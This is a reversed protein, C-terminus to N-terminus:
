LRLCPAEPALLAAAKSLSRPPPQGLSKLEDDLRRCRAVPRLLSCARTFGVLASLPPQEAGRQDHEHSLVVQAPRPRTSTDRAGAHPRAAGLAAASGGAPRPQAPPPLRGARGARRPRPRAPQVLRHLRAPLPRAVAAAARRAAGRAAQGARAVARGRGAQLVRPARHLLPAPGVPPLLNRRSPQHHRAHRACEHRALRVRAPLADGALSAAHGTSRRHSQTAGRRPSGPLPAAVEHGDRLLRAGARHGSPCCINITALDSSLQVLVQRESSPLISLESPKAAGRRRGESSSGLGQESDVSSHFSDGGRPAPRGGGLLRGLSSRAARATARVPTPCCCCLCGLASLLAEGVRAPVRLLWGGCASQGLRARVRACSAAARERRTPVRRVVVGDVRVATCGRLLAEIDSADKVRLVSQFRLPVPHFTGNRINRLVRLQSRSAARVSRFMHLTAAASLAQLVTSLVNLLTVPLLVLLSARAGLAALLAVAVAVRGFPMPRRAGGFGGRLRANLLLLLPYYALVLALSLGVGARGGDPCEHSPSYLSQECRLSPLQPLLLPAAATFCATVASCFDAAALADSTRIARKMRVTSSPVSLQSERSSSRLRLEAIRM